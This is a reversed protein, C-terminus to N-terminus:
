RSRCSRCGRRRDRVLDRDRLVLDVCISSSPSRSTGPSGGPARAARRPPRAAATGPRALGPSRGLVRAVDAAGVRDDVVRSRSPTSPSGSSTPRCASSAVPQHGLVEDVRHALLEAVLPRARVAGLCGARAVLVALEVREARPQAARSAVSCSSCSIQSHSSIPRLLSSSVIRRARCSSGRRCGGCRQPEAHARALAAEADVARGPDQVADLPEVARLGGVDSRSKRCSRQFPM